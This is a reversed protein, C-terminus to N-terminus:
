NAWVATLFIVNEAKEFGAFIAIKCLPPILMFSSFLLRILSGIPNGLIDLDGNRKARKAGIARKAIAPKAIKADQV